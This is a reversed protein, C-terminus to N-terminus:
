LITNMVEKIKELDKAFGDPGRLWKYYIAKGNELTEISRRYIGDNHSLGHIHHLHPWKIDDAYFNKGLTKMMHFIAVDGYYHDLGPLWLYGLADLINKTIVFHDAHTVGRKTDDPYVMGFGNNEELIGIIRADYNQTNCRTDDGLFGIYKYFDFIKLAWNVKPGFRMSPGIVAIYKENKSLRKYENLCSDDEDLLVIVDVKGSSMELFSKACDQLNQPRGRSPLFLAIKDM